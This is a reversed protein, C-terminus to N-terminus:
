LHIRDTNRDTQGFVNKAATAQLNSQWQQPAQLFIHAAAPHLKELGSMSVQDHSSSLHRDADLHGEQVFSLMLSGGKKLPLKEFTLPFVTTTCGQVYLM